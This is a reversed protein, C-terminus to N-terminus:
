LPIGIVLSFFPAAFAIICAAVADTATMVVGEWEASPDEALNPRCCTHAKRARRTFASPFQPVSATCLHLTRTTAGVPRAVASGPQRLVTGV